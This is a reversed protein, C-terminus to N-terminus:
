KKNIISLIVLSKIDLITTSILLGSFLFFNSFSIMVGINEVKASRIYGYIDNNNDQYLDSYKLIYHDFYPLITKEFDTLKENEILKKVLNKL